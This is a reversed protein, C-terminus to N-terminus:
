TVDHGAPHMGKSEPGHNGPQLNIRSHCLHHPGGGYIFVAGHISIVRDVAHTEPM